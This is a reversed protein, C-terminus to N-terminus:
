DPSQAPWELVNIRNSLLWKKILKSTHKPDNEHQFIWQIPMEDKAYPLM